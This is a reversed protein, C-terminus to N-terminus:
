QNVTPQILSPGCSYQRQWLLALMPYIRRQLGKPSYPKLERDLNIALWESSQESHIDISVSHRWASKLHHHSCRVHLKRITSRNEYKMDCKLHPFINRAIATYHDLAHPLGPLFDFLIINRIKSCKFSKLACSGNFPEYANNLGTFRKDAVTTPTRDVKLPM